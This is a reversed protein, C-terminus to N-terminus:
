DCQKDCNDRLRGFEACPANVALSPYIKVLVATHVNVLVGSGRDFFPNGIQKRLHCDFFLGALHSGEVAAAPHEFICQRGFSPLVPDPLIAYAVDVLFVVANALRSRLIREWIGSVNIGLMLYLPPENLLCPKADRYIKRIFANSSQTM